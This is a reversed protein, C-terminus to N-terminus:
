LSVGLSTKIFFGLLYAVLSAAGGVLLIEVGARVPSEMTVLARATGVGFFTIGALVASVFFQNQSFHLLYPLLPVAGAAVFAVFTAIGHDLAHNAESDRLDRESPGMSDMLKKRSRLSLFNSAGMSFGDAFLNALGLIIVIAPSLSAGAVGAVVAFTTVIGDSAGYVFDGLYTSGWAKENQKRM